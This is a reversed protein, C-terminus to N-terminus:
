CSVLLEQEQSVLVEIAGMESVDALAQTTYEGDETEDAM